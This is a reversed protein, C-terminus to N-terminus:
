NCNPLGPRHPALTSQTCKIGLPEFAFAGQDSRSGSAGWCGPRRSIAVFQRIRAVFPYSTAVGTPYIRMMEPKVDFPPRENTLRNSIKFLHISQKRLTLSNSVAGVILSAGVGEQRPAFCGIFGSRAQTRRKKTVKASRM